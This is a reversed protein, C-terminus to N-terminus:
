SQPVSKYTGDSTRGQYHRLRIDSVDHGIRKRLDPPVDLFHGIRASAQRSSTRAPREFPTPTQRYFVVDAGRVAGGFARDDLDSAQRLLQYRRHMRGVPDVGCQSKASPDESSLVAQFFCHGTSPVPPKFALIPCICATREVALYSFFQTVQGRNPM